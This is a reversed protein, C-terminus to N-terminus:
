PAVDADIPEGSHLADIASRTIDNLTESSYALGEGRDLQDSGLRIAAQWAAIFVEEAQMLRIADGIVATADSYLGSAVKSEIFGEMEPPLSVHITM